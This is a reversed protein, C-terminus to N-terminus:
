NLFIKPHIQYYSTVSNLAENETDFVGLSKPKINKAGSTYARWKGSKMKSIGRYRNKEETSKLQLFKDYKRKLGINDEPYGDYIYKCFKIVRYMGYIQFSSSNGTKRHEKSIHYPIELNKCLNELYTWNQNVSSSISIGHSGKNNTKICGDGDILGRFWYHRLQNPILSLIKDASATSKSKYDHSILFNVLPKNTTKIQCIKKWNENKPQRSYYKWKGTKLFLPIFCDADPYTTALNIGYPPYINGDAWILGLIYISIPNKPNIFQHSSVNYIDNITKKNKLGNERRWNRIVKLKLSSCKTIISNISHNLKESCFKSGHTPYYKSLFEIEENTYPLRM